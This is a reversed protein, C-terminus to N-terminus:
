LRFMKRATARGDRILDPLGVGHYTNGALYLGPFAAALQELEAVRAQHGVEYQPLSRPWRRVVTFAPEPLMGLIDDLQAKARLALSQDSNSLLAPAAEGGYFARLLVGGPPVRNTFKQDVFTCALLSPAGGARQPVLFGFGPPIRMQATQDARFALAVVIASSAEINLLADFRPHLPALLRRSAHAPTALVVADFTATEGGASVTWGGPGLAISNVAHQLRITSTPLTAAMGDILTGLGSSLTTFIAPSGRQSASEAGLRSQLALILSGYEREMKVFAPMVSRVSLREISGGFVGSLLPAAVKVAVEEGFHRRVFSAVPEDGEPGAPPAAAKLEEARASESCYGARAEASFLPSTTIADLDSPVMMRMGDPMPILDGDQLILTRRQQDNSPIIEPGLGLEVALEHAWPKETVWADPGCEIIFGDQRVTEVTGGLREAAEYLVFEPAPRALEGAICVSRLRQLEYAVALGSVGGGIIAIRQSGPSSSAGDAPTKM